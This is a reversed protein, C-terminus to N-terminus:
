FILQQQNSGQQRLKCQTAHLHRLLSASLSHVTSAGAEHMGVIHEICGQGQMAQTRIITHQMCAHHLQHLLVVAQSSFTSKYSTRVRGM